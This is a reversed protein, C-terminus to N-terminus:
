IEREVLVPVAIQNSGSIRIQPTFFNGDVLAKIRRTEDTYVKQMM